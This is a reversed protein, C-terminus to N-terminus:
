ISVSLPLAILCDTYLHYIEAKKPM